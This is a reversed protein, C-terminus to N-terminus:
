PTALMRNQWIKRFVAHFQFCKPGYPRTGPAVGQIRLQITYSSLGVRVCGISVIKLIM